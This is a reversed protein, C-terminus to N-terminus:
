REGDLYRFARDYITQARDFKKGAAKWKEYHERSGSYKHMEDLAEDTMKKAKRLMVESKAHRVDWRSYTLIGRSFILFLLEERSFKLIEDKVSIEVPKM